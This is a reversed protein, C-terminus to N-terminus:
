FTYGLRIVASHDSATDSLGRAYSFTAFWTQDITYFGYFVASRVDEDGKYISDSVQYAASAYVKPSFYYGVGANLGHTDQYYISQSRVDKDNIMTYTYGAFLNIDGTRKSASAMLALDTAENDLDTSYTPLILAAGVKVLLDNSPKMHRFVGIFTDNLGREDTGSDQSDYASLIAQLSYKGVYYDVQVSATITDAEANSSPSLQSYGIGYIVDGTFHRRQQNDSCGSQDVLETIPTNPCRDSKDEVGDLDADSYAMLTM